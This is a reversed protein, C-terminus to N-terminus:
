HAHGDGAAASEPITVSARRSNRAKRLTEIKVDKERWASSLWRHFATRFERDVAYDSQTMWPQVDRQEIDVVVVGLEGRCLNWFTVGERSYVLTVDLIAHFMPGMSTLALAMGGARPPLLHRYPSARSRRKEETFRTGEVFNIVSTPTDRFKECAARTVRLDEGKKEPHKALYSKPYRKMFPMDLAWWALGLFPFWVLEQKIFFKLFPIRRNFVAQLVVIDVWTRHNSIVLYWGRRNLNDAGRVDLQAPGLGLILANVGVWSEGIWMLSRTLARRLSPVPLLLKVLALAFLPLCWWITNVTLAAFVALARLNRM